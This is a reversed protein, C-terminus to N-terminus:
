HKGKDKDKNHGLAKGPPPSAVTISVAPSKATVGGTDTAIVTLSYSGKSVNTWYFTPSWSNSVVGILKANALFQVNAIPNTFFKTVASIPVTAPATFRDKHDPYIICAAPPPPALITLHVPASTSTLGVNDTAIADLLYKGVPANSWTVSYVTEVVGCENTIVYGNTATGLSTAGSFFQVSAISGDADYAGAYITVNAPAYHKEGSEPELIKVVPPLDTVVTVTVPASTASIGSVDTAAATLTFSGPATNSWTICYESQRLPFVCRSNTVWITPSNSVTGIFNTGEYFSVSAITGSPDYASACININTPGLILEGKEPDIIRVRPPLSTVVSINVPASTASNGALDTAVATLAYAGAVANSWTLCDFERPGDDWGQIQANSGNTVVGISNTGAFYQVQAVADTFNLSVACIHIPCNTLFTQGPEPAVVYVAPPPPNTNNSDDSDALAITAPACSAILAAVGVAKLATLTKMKFEKNTLARKRLM